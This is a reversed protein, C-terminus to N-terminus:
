VDANLLQTTMTHRLHHCSIKLGTKKPMTNWASKFVACRSPSERIAGKEVLFVKKAQRHSRLKLYAILGDVADNSIFVVRSNGGKGDVVMIRRQKLDIDGPVFQSGRRGAIRLAVNIQVHDQM